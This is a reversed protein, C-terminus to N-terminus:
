EEKLHRLDRIRHPSWARLEEGNDNLIGAIPELQVANERWWDLDLSTRCEHDRAHLIRELRVAHAEKVTECGLRKANRKSLRIAFNCVVVPVGGNQAAALLNDEQHPALSKISWSFTAGAVEKLETAYFTSCWLLGLDYVKKVGFRDSKGPDPIPVVHWGHAYGGRILEQQFVREAM